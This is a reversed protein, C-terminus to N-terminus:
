GRVSSLRSGRWLTHRRRLRGRRGELSQEAHKGPANYRGARQGAGDCGRKRASWLEDLLDAGGEGVGFM